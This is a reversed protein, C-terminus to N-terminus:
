FDSKSESIIKEYFKYLMEQKPNFSKDPKLNPSEDKQLKQMLDQIANSIQEKNEIMIFIGNTAKAIRKLPELDQQNKM